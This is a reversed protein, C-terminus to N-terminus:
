PQPGHQSHFERCELRKPRMASAIPWAKCVDVLAVGMSHVGTLSMGILHVSILPVDMLHVDILPVGMLHVDILPVSYSTGHSGRRYSGRWSLWAMFSVGILPMSM